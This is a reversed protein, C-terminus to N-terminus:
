SIIIEDTRNVENFTNQDAYLLLSDGSKVGLITATVGSTSNTMSTGARNIVIGHTNMTVPVAKTVLTPISNSLKGGTSVMATGGVAYILGGYSCVSHWNKGWPLNAKLTWNNGSTSYAYTQTYSFFPSGSSQQYGGVVYGLGDHAIGASRYGALYNPYNARATWTNTATDYSQVNQYEGWGNHSSAGSLYGGVLYISTGLTFWAAAQGAPTPMVAKNTVWTNTAPTYEWTFASGGFIYIKNNVVGVASLASDQGSPVTGVTAWTNATPNYEWVDMVFGGSTRGGILYIKGNVVSTTFYYWGTVPLSSYKVDWEGTLFNFRSVNNGQNTTADIRNTMVYMYDGVIETRAGYFEGEWAYYATDNDWNGTTLNYVQLPSITFISASSVNHGGGSVIYVKTGVKVFGPAVTTAPGAMGTTWTNTVTDYIFLTNKINANTGSTAAKGGFVYVKNNHEWIAAGERAAPMSAKTTWTNSSTDYAEVVATPSGGSRGGCVYIINNVAVCAPFVERTTPIDARATWTDNTMDYMENKVGATAGANTGGFVYVKDSVQACGMAYRATPMSTKATNTSAEPSLSVETVTAVEAASGQQGGIIYAKGTASNYGSAANTRSAVATGNLSSASWSNGSINFKYNATSSTHNLYSSSPGFMFINGGVEIFRTGIGNFTPQTYKNSSARKQTVVSALISGTDGNVITTALSSNSAISGSTEPIVSLVGNGDISLGDGVKVGGLTGASAVPLAYSSEATVVGNGDISLGEGLKIAGATGSTALPLHAPDVTGANINDANLNQNKENFKPM